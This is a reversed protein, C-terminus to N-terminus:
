RPLVRLTADRATAATIADVSPGRGYKARFAEDLRDQVPDDAPVDEFVVEHARGGDAAVTGRHRLRAGRYWAGSAGRVSRVYLDDDAVVSWIIVPDRLTGDEREGAIRIERAQGLAAPEDTKWEAM